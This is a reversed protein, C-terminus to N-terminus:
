TETWELGVAVTANNNQTNKFCVTIWSGAPLDSLKFEVKDEGSASLMVSSILRAGNSSTDIATASTDIDAKSTSSNLKAFNSGTLQGNEYVLIQIPKGSAGIASVSMKNLKIPSYVARGNFIMSSRLSVVPIVVSDSIATKETAYAFNPGLYIREGDVFGSGSAGRTIIGSTSGVNKAEWTIFFTPDRLVTSTVHNANQIIHVATFKGTRYDEIAFYADGYGLYQYQIDFVNGKQPDFIMGSPGTGDMVDVSWESQPIFSETPAVGVVTTSFTGVATAHSFSFSGSYPRPVNSIFVVTSGIAMAFWGRAISFFFGKAIDYATQTTTGSATLPVTTSSGDLTITADTAGSSPTTITLTRIERVATKRYQIGFTTGSYGFRYGAVGNYGGVWQETGASPSSFRGTLRLTTGQGPQYVVARRSSVFAYGNPDTGSNLVLEGASVAASAGSGYTLSYNSVSNISDDIFDVQSVPTFSATVIGGFSSAPGAIEVDLVRGPDSNSSLGPRQPRVTSM